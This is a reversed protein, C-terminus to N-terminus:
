FRFFHKKNLIQNGKARLIVDGDVLGSEQAATGEYVRYLYCSEDDILKNVTKVSDNVDQIMAGFLARRQLEQSYSYNVFVSFLVLLIIGRLYHRSTMFVNLKRPITFIKVIEVVLKIFGLFLGCFFILVFNELLIITKRFISNLSLNEM